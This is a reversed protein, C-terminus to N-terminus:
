TGKFDSSLVEIQQLTQQGNMAATFTTLPSNTLIIQKTATLPQSLPSLQLNNTTALIVAITSSGHHRM